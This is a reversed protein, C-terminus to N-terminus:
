NHPHICQFEQSFYLCFVIQCSHLLNKTSRGRLFIFFLGCILFHSRILRFAKSYWFSVRLSLYPCGESYSSINEFSSVWLSNMELVYLCSMCSLILFLYLGLVFHALSQLHYKESSPRCIASPSMFLHEADSIISLSLTWYALWECQDSHGNWFM